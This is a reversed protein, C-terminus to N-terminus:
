HKGRGAVRPWENPPLDDGARRALRPKRLQELARGLVGLGLLAISAVSHLPISLQGDDVLLFTFRAALGAIGTAVLWRCAEAQRSECISRDRLVAIQLLAALWLLGTVLYDAAILAHATTM